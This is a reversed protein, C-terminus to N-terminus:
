LGSVATLLASDGCFALSFMVGGEIPPWLRGSMDGSPSTDRGFDSCGSDDVAEFACYVALSPRSDFRPGLGAPVTSTRGPRRIVMRGSDGSLSDRRGLLANSRRLVGDGRGAESSGRGTSCCM